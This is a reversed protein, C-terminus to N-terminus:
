EHDRFILCVGDLSVGIVLLASEPYSYYALLHKLLGIVIDGRSKNSLNKEYQDLNEGVEVELVVWSCHFATFSLATSM